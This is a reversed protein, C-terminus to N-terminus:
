NALASKLMTSFSQSSHSERRAAAVLQAAARHNPAAEFWDSAGKFIKSFERLLVKGNELGGGMADIIKSLTGIEGTDPRWKM